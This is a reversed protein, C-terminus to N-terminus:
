AVTELSLVRDSVRQLQDRDHSTWVCARQPQQQLWSTVLKEIAAVAGSDLSATPEDLLLVDPGILLARLMAVIQAEGGSLRETRQQLFKEDRGLMALLERARDLPFPQHRHVRFQFPVRLAAEVQGEPLAPRQPVYVVRARYAPMSWDWLPRDQFILEGTQVPELGALTRLLLTKGSGSAGAVALREGVRLTLDLDHWLTRGDVAFGLQRAQLLVTASSSENASLLANASTEPLSM